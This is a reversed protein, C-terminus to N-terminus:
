GHGLFAADRGRRKTRRPPLQIFRYELAGVLFDESGIRVIGRTIQPETVPQKGDIAALDIQGPFQEGAAIGSGGWRGTIRLAQETAEVLQLGLQGEIEIEDRMGSLPEASQPM